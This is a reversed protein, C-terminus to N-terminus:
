PLKAYFQSVADIEAPAMARAVNRMQQSIDNSRSGSAFAM